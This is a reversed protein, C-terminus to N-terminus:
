AAFTGLMLAANGDLEQLLAAKFQQAIAEKESDLNRIRLQFAPKGGHDRIALRVTFERAPLGAYPECTFRLLAPLPTAAKAEVSALASRTNGHQREESTTESLEAITVKRLANYASATVMPGGDEYAYTVHDSWDQLWHLADAHALTSGNVALLATYAPTPKLQLTATDDAHGPEQVSGLNFIVTASLRDVDIFGPIPAPRVDAKNRATVHAVFDALSHTALKARFRRRNPQYKELDHIAFSDPLAVIAQPALAENMGSAALVSLDRIEKVANSNM